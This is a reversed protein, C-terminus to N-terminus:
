KMLSEHLLGTDYIEMCLLTALRMLAKNLRRRLTSEVIGGQRHLIVKREYNRVYMDFLLTEEQKSLQRMGQMLRYARQKQQQMDIHPQKLMSDTYQLYDKLEDEIQLSPQEIDYLVSHLRLQASYQKLFLMEQKMRYLTKDQRLTKECM